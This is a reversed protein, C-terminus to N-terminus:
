PERPPNPTVHIAIDLQEQDHRQRGVDQHKLVKLASLMSQHVKDYYGINWVWKTCKEIACGMFTFVAEPNRTYHTVLGQLDVICNKPFRIQSTLDEFDWLTISQISDASDLGDWDVAYECCRMELFQLKPYTELLARISGTVRPPPQQPWQMKYDTWPSAQPQQVGEIVVYRTSSVVQNVTTSLELCGGSEMEVFLTDAVNRDDALVGDWDLTCGRRVQARAVPLGMKSTSEM